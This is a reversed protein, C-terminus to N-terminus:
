PYTSRYNRAASNTAPSDTFDGKGLPNATTTGLPQWAPAALNTTCQVTYTLGPIQDFHIRSAGNNLSEIHNINPLPGNNVLIVVSVTGTAQLGTSDAITYAFSDTNTYGVPPTYFLWRGQQVVTGGAPSNTGVSLLSLGNLSWNANSALLTSTRIKLTSNLARQLTLSAASGGRSSVILYGTTNAFYTQDNHTQGSYGWTGTDGTANGLTLSGVYISDGSAVSVKTGAAINLSAVSTGAPLSDTGGGSLTLSTYNGVPLTETGGSFYFNGGTINCSGGDYVWAGTSTVTAGANVTLYGTSYLTLGGSTLTGNVTVSGQLATNGSANVVGTSNVKFICSSDFTLTGTLIGNITVSGQLQMNGAANVIGGQNITLASTNYLAVPGTLTGNVTLVGGMTLGGQTSVNVTAGSAIMFNCGSGVNIASAALTGAAVTFSGSGQNMTLTGLTLNNTVVPYHACGQSITVSAGTAPVSQINSPINWTPTWNTRNNWDTSVTGYWTQAGALNGLLLISVAALRTATSKLREVIAPRLSMFSKPNSRNPCMRAFPATPKVRIVHDITLFHTM